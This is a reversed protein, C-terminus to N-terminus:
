ITPSDLSLLVRLTFKEPSELDPRVWEPFQIGPLQLGPNPIHPLGGEM